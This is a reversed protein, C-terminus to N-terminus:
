EDINLYKIRTRTILKKNPKTVEIGIGIGIGIIFAILIKNSEEVM